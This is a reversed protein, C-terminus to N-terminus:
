ETVRFQETRGTAVVEADILFVVRGKGENLVSVNQLQVQPVWLSLARNVEAVMRLVTTRNTSDDIM